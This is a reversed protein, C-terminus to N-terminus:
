SITTDNGDHGDDDAEAEAQLQAQENVYGWV